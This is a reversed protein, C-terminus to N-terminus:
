KNGVNYTHNVYNHFNNLKMQIQIMLKWCFCVKAVIIYQSSHTNPMEVLDAALDVNIFEPISIKNIGICLVANVLQM